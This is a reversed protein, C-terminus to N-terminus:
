FGKPHKPMYKIDRECKRRLTPFFLFCLDLETVNETYHLNYVHLMFLFLCEDGTSERRQVAGECRM